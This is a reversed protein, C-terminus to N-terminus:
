SQVGTHSEHESITNGGKESVAEEPIRSEERPKERGLEQALSRTEGEGKSIEGSNADQVKGEITKENLRRNVGQVMQAFQEALKSLRDQAAEQAEILQPQARIVERRDLLTRTTNNLERAKVPIRITRGTKSDLVYDGGEIRDELQELTRKVIKTMKADLASDDEQRVDQMMEKWWDQKMWFKVTDRPVGALAAAQSINGLANYNTAVEIKKADSWDRKVGKLGRALPKRAPVGQM